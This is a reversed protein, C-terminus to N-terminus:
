GLIAAEVQAPGLGARTLDVERLLVGKCTELEVENLGVGALLRFLEELDKLIRLAEPHRGTEELWTRFWMGDVEERGTQEKQVRFTDSQKYTEVAGSLTRRLEPGRPVWGGEEGREWFIQEYLAEAKEFGGLSLRPSSVMYDQGEPDPIPRTGTATQEAPVNKYVAFGILAGILEKETRTRAYIGLKQLRKLLQQGPNPPVTAVPQPDPSIGALVQALEEEARVLTLDSDGGPEYFEFIQNNVTIKADYDGGYGGDGDVVPLIDGPTDVGDSQPSVTLAGNWTLTHGAGIDVQDYDDGGKGEDLLVFYESGPGFTLDGDVTLGAAAGDGGPSLRGNFTVSTGRLMIDDATEVSENYTQAGDTTVSSELLLMGGAGTADTTLHGLGNPNAGVVNGGGVDADFTTDANPTNVTLGHATNTADVFSGFRVGTGGTDTLIVDATLLVPDEYTQTGGVTTIDASLQTQGDANTTVSALPTLGGVEGQFATPMGGATNVTLDWPGAGNGNLTERFTVPGSEIRTHGSLTAAEHSHSGAFTIVGSLDATAGNTTSLAGINLAAGGNLTDGAITTVSAREGMDLDNGGGNISTNFAINDAELVTDAGLEVAENYTQDDDTVVLGGDLHLTGGVGTDDTVLHGLGDPDSGAVNGGGVEGTFTTDANPTNVTLGYSSGAVGDDDADVHNNFSVGTGGTDTLTVDVMLLVPGTYTQTSATRVDNNLTIAGDVAGTSTSNVDLANVYSGAAVNDFTGLAVAGGNNADATSTDIDLDIGGASASVTAASLDVAGAADGGGTETDMTTNSHLVVDGDFTADGGDTQYTGNLNITTGTVNIAGTTVVDELDVQAASSVAFDAPPTTGGVDGQFDVAGGTGGAVALGSAAGTDEVAGTVTVNAGGPQAGGNTTDLTVLAPTGLLVNDSITIANGFTVIDANLTTTADPGDLTVSADGAGTIQGDVAISGGAPTRITAPDNFTASAVTVVHQGNARGIAVSNFGDVLRGLEADDVNFNGAGGGIGISRAVTVPRLLLDGSGSVNGNIVVDQATVTVDTGANVAGLRLTDADQLTVSGGQTVTLTDGTDDSDFDNAANNLTIDDGPTATGGADLTTAGAVTMPGTQTIRGNAAVNLGGNANEVDAFTIDDTEELIIHGPGNSAADVSNVTTDLDIGGQADATLADAIVDVGAGGDDMIAGGQSDLTVDGATGADVLIAHIDLGAGTATLSIDNADADTLSRVDTAVLGGGAIVTISGDATDVDALQVGDLEDLVIDGAANASADVNEVTIDLDIGGQADATLDQAIVDDADDVGDQTIAGGQADLTVDNAAGANVLDAQIGAGTSTLSIDNTDDDTASSDVDTATVQGGADVDIAGDATDVDALTVDDADVYTIDGVGTSSADLNDADNAAQGLDIKGPADAFLTGVATTGGIDGGTQDIEGVGSVDYDANIDVNGTTGVSGGTQRYDAGANFTILGGGTSSVDAAVTIHDDDGGDETAQLTVAGGASVAANVNLPSSAVIHVNGNTNTVSGAAGALDELALTGTNIINIANDTTEADLESVQTDLEENAGGGDGIGDVAMLVLDDATVDVAADGAADTIAGAATLTVRHDATISDVGMDDEDVLEVAGAQTVTIGDGSDDNDFDNAANDLTIDGGADLTSAGAVDLAGSQTIQGAATIDLIGAITSAGLTIDNADVLTVDSTNSVVVDGTFDNAANDLTIANGGADLITAGSNWAGGDTIADNETIGVTGGTVTLDGFANGANNLTIDNGVADLTTAGATVAGSQTITGSATVDLSGSITSAGLELANTDVLTVNDAGPISVAAQFDNGAADLTIDDTAQATLRTTGTATLAGAGTDTIDGAGDSADLNVVSANTAGTITITEATVNLPEGGTSGALTATDAGGEGDLTIGAAFGNDLVALRLTDGGDNANVALSNTPNVFTTTEVTGGNDALQSSGDAPAGNDQLTVDDAAATLNFIIDAATGDNTIPELGDFNITDGDLVISGDKGDADSGNMNYTHTAFGAGVNQLELNDGGAGQTGGDVNLGGGPIPNGDGFDVTITDDGDGADYSVTGTGGAGSIILTDDGATGGATVDGVFVVGGDNGSLTVDTMAAATSGIRLDETNGSFTNDTVTLDASGFHAAGGDVDEVAHIGLAQNNLTNGDITLKDLNGPVGTQTYDVIWIGTGAPSGAGGVNDITNGTIELDDTGTGNGIVVGLHYGTIDNDSIVSPAGPDTATVGFFEIGYGSSQQTPGGTTLTNNTVALDVIPNDGFIAGDGDGAVIQNRDVTLGTAGAAGVSIGMSANGGGTTMDLKNGRITVGSPGNALQVLFTTAAGAEITFGEDPSDADDPDGLIVNDAGGELGIGVGDVLQITTTGMGGTSRVTLDSKDIVLDGTYGNGTGSLVVIDDGASSDDISQQIGPRIVLSATDQVVNAGDAVVAANDYTNSGDSFLDYVEGGTFVGGTSRLHYETSSSFDNGTIAYTGAELRAGTGMLLATENGDLTNNIVSVANVDGAVGPSYEAFRIGNTSASIDNGTITLGDVGAGNSILIGNAYDSITNDQISSTGTVGSFQLAYGSGALAAPGTLTNDSVTLDSVSPGWVSGDGLDGATFTNDTISLGDAGAAGVSIGMSANGTTNITNDVISVNSPANALQILFTSGAGSLITFGAGAGGLTFNDAGGELGIGVGDVLQITTSGDGNQSQLTLSKDIALDETYTGDAAEVTAGGSAIDIGNQLSGGGGVNVTTAEGTLSQSPQLTILENLDITLDDNPDDEDNLSLTTGNDVTTTVDDTVTIKDEAEVVFDAGGDMAGEITAPDVDGGAAGDVIEVQAPDIVILGNAADAGGPSASLTGQISVSDSRVVILGGDGAGLADARVVSAQDIEVLSTRDSGVGGGITVEGGAAGSADVDADELRVEDGLIEVNGGPAEVEGTVEVAGEGQGEVTVEEGSIRGSNRIALAYMDGAALLAQGGSADVDGSNEVAADGQAAAAAGEVKAFVHGDVRGILIDEGAALTVIGNSAAIDGYNAARAGVLHVADGQITGYNVVEGSADTFRNVDGLFDANSMQAAAAYIGGVDVLCGDRFYIGGPNVLYVIGNATLSGYIETPNAGGIRNLVRSLEDPQVFRVSEDGAIDFSQYEIITDDAARIVTDSGNREFAADGTVVQEGQPAALALGAVTVWLLVCLVLAGARLYTRRHSRGNAAM